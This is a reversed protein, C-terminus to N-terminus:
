RGYVPTLWKGYNPELGRVIRHYKEALKQTIPGPLGDGIKRGDVEVIPTVEAATGTFFLEDATYLETRSIPREVVRYGMDTSLKIVTDRTIGELISSSAPPTILIENKVLFINEGAGESVYGAQDLLVAEDYGQQRAETSALISNLYNASAKARPPMSSDPLRRWSSVCVRLGQKSFFKELPFVLVAARVPLEVANLSMINEGAYIIP